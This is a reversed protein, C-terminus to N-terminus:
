SQGCQNMMKYSPVDAVIQHVVEWAEEEWRAKIKRKDKWAHAKVPVLDGPKLNVMGIKRNYYLKQQCAEATSQAQAEWLATRLRDRESAVYVDVCKTSAERM